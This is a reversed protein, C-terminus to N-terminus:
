HCATSQLDDLVTNASKVAMDRQLNIDLKRSATKGWSNKTKNLQKAFIEKDNLIQM